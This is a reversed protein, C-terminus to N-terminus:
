AAQDGPRDLAGPRPVPLRRDERYEVDESLSVGVPPTEPQGM